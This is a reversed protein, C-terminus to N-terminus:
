DQRQAACQQPLLPATPGVPRATLVRRNAPPRSPAAPMCRPLATRGDKPRVVCAAAHKHGLVSWSCRCNSFSLWGRVPDPQRDM